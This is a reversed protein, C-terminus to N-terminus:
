KNKCMFSFFSLFKVTVRVDSMVHILISLYLNKLLSLQFIVQQYFFLLLFIIRWLKVRLLINTM